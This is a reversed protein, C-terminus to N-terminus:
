GRQISEEPYVPYLQGEKGAGDNIMDGGKTAMMAQLSEYGAEAANLISDLHERGNALGKTLVVGAPDILVAYPTTSVQFHLASGSSSIFPLHSLGRKEAYARNSAEDGNFTMLVLRLHKEQKATAKLAPVLQECASCGDSVFVLLTNRKERDPIYVRKGYVDRGIFPEIAKGLEPGVNGIRAGAQPLRRYLLGVQRALAATAVSLLAVVVWLAVYSGILFPSM